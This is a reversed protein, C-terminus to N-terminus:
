SKRVGVEPLERTLQRAAFIRVMHVSKERGSDRGRERGARWNERIGKKKMGALRLNNVVNAVKPTGKLNGRASAQRRPRSRYAHISNQYM